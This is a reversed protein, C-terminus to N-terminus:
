GTGTGIRPGLRPRESIVTPVERTTIDYIPIQQFTQGSIYQSAFIELGRILVPM